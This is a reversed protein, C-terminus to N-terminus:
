TQMRSWLYAFLWAVGITVVVALAVLLLPSSLVASVVAAVFLVAKQLALWLLALLVLSGILITAARDSM